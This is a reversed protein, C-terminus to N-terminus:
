EPRQGKAQEAAFRRNCAYCAPRHNAIDWFLDPYRSVPHIHDVVDTAETCGPDGTGATVCFPHEARYRRSYQKWRETGYRPDTTFKRLQSVTQTHESDHGECRISDTLRHCGPEACVRMAGDESSSNMLGVPNTEATPDGHIFSEAWLAARVCDDVSADPHQVVLESAHAAMRALSARIRDARSDVSM